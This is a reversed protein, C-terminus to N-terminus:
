GPPQSWPDTPPGPPPPPYQPPPPPPPGWQQQGWQPAGPGWGPQGWPAYAARKARGRRTTGIILMVLGGVFMSGGFAGTAIWGIVSRIADGISRAVIVTTPITNSFRLEYEGGVPADFVLSSNYVDAGRTITEPVDDFQVTVLNGSPDRVSVLSPSIRALPSDGRVSFGSRVGTHQFVTYRAHHLHVHVDAPVAYATSTFTGLLPVVIAVLSAVAIVLGVGMITISVGLGPGPARPRSPM